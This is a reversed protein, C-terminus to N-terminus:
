LAGGVVFGAVLALVALVAGWVRTREARRKWTALDARLTANETLRADLDREASDFLEALIRGDAELERIRAAQAAVVNPNPLDVRSRSYRIAGTMTEFCGGQPTTWAGDPMRFAAIAPDISSRWASSTHHVILGDVERPELIKSM